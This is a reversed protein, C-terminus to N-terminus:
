AAERAANLKKRIRGLKRNADRCQSEISKSEAGDGADEVAVASEKDM